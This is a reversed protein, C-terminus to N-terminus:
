ESTERLRQQYHVFVQDLTGNYKACRLALMHNSNTEYWWAGSRKLRVHCIFKNSSEIGGSGLPYGGRRLQRYHTRGRHEHLYDWCNAIAKEAEDSQAQMRKLGGLVLGVKGLSLRTLTAEVWELAQVSSDYHAKAVRHLYQACHYYDLVQRAQPFLAQVHKWIWEAGDCVVCLRVQEAPIVGAEQVQKLAEGLQEENQVQHWSLVHVIREGDLLYFRFGKADRWQGRWRARRARKGRRGACPERASDPRTPVYAGDIGLVLVPRRFRGASVSAIRREIEQRSPTVDLVTLGTGAQNTMTHMRESGFPMGTLDGFLSQATDYPVETVLQAAAQQMDLQKCGAVLGLVADLPYLGARCARCYFYPRELEVPGVMTEVTRGVHEQVKLVRTCRPCSAQQRQREGEHAYKVITETIGGTLQQRLDWVTATVEPLLAPPEHWQQELTDLWQDFREHLQQRLTAWQRRACVEEFSIIEAAGM